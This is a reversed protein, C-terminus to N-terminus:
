RGRNPIRPSPYEFLSVIEIGELPIYNIIVFPKVVWLVYFEEHDHFL